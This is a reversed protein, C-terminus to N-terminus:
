HAARILDAAKEAVGYVSASLHASLQMPLISADVVCVNHTDYVKLQADVVGGLERRMMTATGIPHM